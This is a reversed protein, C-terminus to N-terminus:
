LVLERNDYVRYFDKTLNEETSKLQGAIGKDVLEKGLESLRDRQSRIRELRHELGIYKYHLLLLDNDIHPEIDNGSSDLLNTIHCGYSPVFSYKPSFLVAKDFGSDKMGQKILETIPIGTYAPFTLDTMQYGFPKFFYVGEEVKKSLFEKTPITRHHILEDPDVQIILDFESALQKYANQKVYTFWVEDFGGTVMSMVSLPVGCEQATKGALSVMNDTSENDILFIHSAIKSYHKIFFPIIKEENRGITIVAIKM